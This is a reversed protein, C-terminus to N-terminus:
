YEDTTWLSLMKIQNFVNFIAESFVMHHVLVTYRHVNDSALQWDKHETCNVNIQVTSPNLFRLTHYSQRSHEAVVLWQLSEIDTSWDEEANLILCGVM